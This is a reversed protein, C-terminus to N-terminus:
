KALSLVRSPSASDRLKLAMSCLTQFIYILRVSTMRGVKGCIINSEFNTSSSTIFYTLNIRAFYGSRIIEQGSLRGRLDIAQRRWRGILLSWLTNRLSLMLNVCGLAQAIYARPLALRRSRVHSEVFNGSFKDKDIINAYFDRVLNPYIFSPFNLIPGWRLRDFQEQVKFYAEM